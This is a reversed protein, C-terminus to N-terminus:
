VLFWNFNTALVTVIKKLRATADSLNLNNIVVFKNIKRFFSNIYNKRSAFRRWNRGFVLFNSKIIIVCHLTSPRYTSHSNYTIVGSFANKPVPLTIKHSQSYILYGLLSYFIYRESHMFAKINTWQSNLSLKFMGPIREGHLAVFHENLKHLIFNLKYHYM